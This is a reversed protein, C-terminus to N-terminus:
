EVVAYWKIERDKLEYVPSQDGSPGQYSVHRRNMAYLKHNSRRGEIEHLLYGYQGGLANPFRISVTGGIGIFLGLRDGKLIPQNVPIQFVKFATSIPTAPGVDM